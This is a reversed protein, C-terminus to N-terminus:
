PHHEADPEEQAPVAEPYKSRYFGVIMDVVQEYTVTGTNIVLDYYEDANPDWQYLVRSMEARVRDEVAIRSAAEDQSLGTRAMVRRVRMPLPATLRVHLSGVARGLVVAGNRGRIVAGDEAYRLLETRNAEALSHDEAVDLARALDADQTGTYAITSLWREFANDSFLARADVQAVQESSFKQDVFQVGLKEAVAPGIDSAGSGELEFITVVPLIGRETPRLLLDRADGLEAVRVREAPVGHATRVAGESRRANLDRVIDRHAEISLNYGIM